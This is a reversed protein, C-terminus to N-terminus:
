TTDTGPDGDFAVVCKAEVGGGSFFAMAAAATALFQWMREECASCKNRQNNKNVILTTRKLHQWTESYENSIEVGGISHGNFNCKLRSNM